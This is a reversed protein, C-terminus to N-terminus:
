LLDTPEPLLRAGHTEVGTAVIRGSLGQARATREFAAEIAPLEHERALAIIAPGAGSVASGLAGADLAAQILGAAFPFLRARYPQHLRDDMATRLADLQGCGLAAVLLASRAVNFLADTRPVTEPLVARAQKTPVRQDPIYVVARLSSPVALRVASGSVGSAAYLTLGGHLAAAVNDGHGEIAVAHGLLEEDSCPSGVLANAAVLGAVIAASSSGLGRGLPIANRMAVRLRPPPRGAAEFLRRAAVLMLNDPGSDLESAGEGEIAVSDHVAPELTVDNYIQLALGACDFASGLNASTAPTRVRVRAREPETM